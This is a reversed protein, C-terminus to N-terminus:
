RAAPITKRIARVSTPASHASASTVVTSAPARRIGARATLPTKSKQRQATLSKLVPPSLVVQQPARGQASAPSSGLVLAAAAAALIRTIMM